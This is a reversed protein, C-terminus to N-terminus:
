SLTNYLVRENVHKKRGRKKPALSQLAERYKTINLLPRKIWRGEFETYYCVAYLAAYGQGPTPVNKLFDIIGREVFTKKYRVVLQRDYGSEEEATEYFAGNTLVVGVPYKKMIRKSNTIEYIHGMAISDKANSASDYFYKMMDKIPKLHNAVEKSVYDDPFVSKKRKQTNKKENKYYKCFEDLAKEFERNNKAIENAIRYNLDEETEKGGDLYDVRISEEIEKLKNKRFKKIREFYAIWSNYDSNKEM